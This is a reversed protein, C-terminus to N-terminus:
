RRSVGCAGGFMWTREMTSRKLMLRPRHTFTIRVGLTRVRQLRAARRGGGFPALFLAALCLRM